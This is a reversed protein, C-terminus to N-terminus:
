LRMVFEGLASCCAGGAKVMPESFAPTAAKTMFIEAPATRQKCKLDRGGNWPTIYAYAAILFSIGM